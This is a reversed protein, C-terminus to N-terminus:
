ITTLSIAFLDWARCVVAVQDPQSLAQAVMYYSGILLGAYEFEVGFSRHRM